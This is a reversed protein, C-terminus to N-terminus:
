KKLFKDGFEEIEKKFGSFSNELRQNSTVMGQNSNVISQSNQNLAILLAKLNILHISISVLLIAIITLIINLYKMRWTRTTFTMTASFLDKDVEFFAWGM